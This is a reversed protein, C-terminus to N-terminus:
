TLTYWVDGDLHRRVRLRNGDLFYRVQAMNVDGPGTEAFPSVGRWTLFSVAHGGDIQIRLFPMQKLEDFGFEQEM